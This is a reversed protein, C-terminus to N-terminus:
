EVILNTLSFNSGPFFFPAPPHIRVVSRALLSLFKASLTIRNLRTRLPWVGKHRVNSFLLISTILIIKGAPDSTATVSRSGELMIITAQGTKKQKFQIFSNTFRTQKRSSQCAHIRLCDQGQTGPYRACYIGATVQMVFIHQFGM